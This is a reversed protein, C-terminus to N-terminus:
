KSRIWYTSETWHSIVAITNWIHNYALISDKEMYWWFGAAWCGYACKQKFVFNLMNFPINNHKLVSHFKGLLNFTRHNVYLFEKLLALCWDFEVRHFAWLVLNTSINIKLLKNVKWVKLETIFSTNHLSFQWNQPLNHAIFYWNRILSMQITKLDKPPFFWVRFFKNKWNWNWNVVFFWSSKM